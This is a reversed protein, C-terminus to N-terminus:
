NGHMLFNVVVSIPLIELGCFYLFWSLRSFGAHLFLSRGRLYYLGFGAAAAVGIWGRLLWAPSAPVLWALLAAVLSLLIMPLFVAYGALELSRFATRRSTLWGSLFYVAKRFLWLLALAALTWLYGAASVGTVVFALAYFPILLVFIMRISDVVYLNGLMEQTGYWGHCCAYSGRIATVLRNYGLLVVLGVALLFALVFPDPM